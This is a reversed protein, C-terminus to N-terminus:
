GLGESYGEWELLNQFSNDGAGAPVGLGPQLAGPPLHEPQNKGQTTNSNFTEAIVGVSFM